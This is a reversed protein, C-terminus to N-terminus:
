PCLEKRTYEAMKSKIVRTDVELNQSAIFHFLQTTSLLHNIKKLSLNQFVKTFHGIRLLSLCFLAERHDLVQAFRLKSYALAIENLYDQSHELISARADLELNIIHPIFEESIQIIEADNKDICQTNKISFWSNTNELSPKITFGQTELSNKIQEIGHTEKLAYLDLTIEVQFGTPLFAINSNLYGYKPHITYNFVKGLKEELPLLFYNYNELLSFGKDLYTITLNNNHNIRISHKQNNHVLIFLKNMIDKKKSDQAQKSIIECPTDLIPFFREYIYNIEHVSLDKLDFFNFESFNKNGELIKFIRKAKERSLKFDLNNVNRFFSIKSFLLVEPNNNHNELWKCTKNAQQALNM